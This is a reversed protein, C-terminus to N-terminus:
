SSSSTGPAANSMSSATATRRRWCTWARWVCDTAEFVGRMLSKLARSPVIEVAKEAGARFSVHVCRVARRRVAAIIDGEIVLCRLGADLAESFHQSVLVEHGLGWMAELAALCGQKTECFLAAFTPQGSVRRLMVPLGGVAEIAHEVDEARRVLMARPVPLGYSDLCQTCRVRNRVLAVATAPNFAPVGAAEFQSLVARWLDAAFRRFTGVGTVGTSTATTSRPWEGFGLRFRHPARVDV